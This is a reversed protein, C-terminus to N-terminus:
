TSPKVLSISNLGSVSFVFCVFIKEKSYEGSRSKEDHLKKGGGVAM